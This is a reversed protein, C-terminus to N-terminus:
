AGLIAIGFDRADLLRISFGVWKSRQFEGM